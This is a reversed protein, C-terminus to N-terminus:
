GAGSSSGGSTGCGTGGAMVGQAKAVVAKAKDYTFPFRDVVKRDKNLVYVFPVASVAFYKSSVSKDADVVVISGPSKAAYLDGVNKADEGFTVIVYNFKKGSLDKKVKEFDDVAALSFPCTTTSFLLMAGTDACLQSLNTASGNSNSITFDPIIEGAKVLPQTYMKKETGPVEALLESVMTRLRDPELGGSFRVVGDRDFIYLTPYFFFELRTAMARGNDIAYSLDPSLNKAEEFPHGALPVDIRYVVVGEPKNRAFEALLPTSKETGPCTEMGFLAVLIKGKNQTIIDSPATAPKAPKAGPTNAERSCSVIGVCVALVASLVVMEKKLKM